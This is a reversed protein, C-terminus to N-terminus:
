RSPGVAGVRYNNLGFVVGDHRQRAAIVRMPTSSRRASRTASSPDTAIDVLAVFESRVAEASRHTEANWVYPM